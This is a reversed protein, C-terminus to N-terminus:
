KLCTSYRGVDKCQVATDDLLVYWPTQNKTTKAGHIALIRLSQTTGFNVSPEPVAGPYWENHRFRLLLSTNEARNCTMKGPIILLYFLMM